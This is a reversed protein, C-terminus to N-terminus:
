TQMSEGQDKLPWDAVAILNGKRDRGVSSSDFSFAMEKDKFDVVATALLKTTSNRNMKPVNGTNVHRSTFKKINMHNSLM